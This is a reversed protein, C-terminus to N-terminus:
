QQRETGTFAVVEAEIRFPPHLGAQITVRAPPNKPFFEAWVQNFEDFDTFDVLYTRVFMVENLTAGADSLVATINTFVQHAENRFTDNVPVWDATVGVQGSLYLTNGAQRYAAAPPATVANKEM